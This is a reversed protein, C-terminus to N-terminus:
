LQEFYQLEVSISVSTIKNDKIVISKLMPMGAVKVEKIFQLRQREEDGGYIVNKNKLIRKIEDNSIKQGITKPDLPYKNNVHLSCFVTIFTLLFVLILIFIM